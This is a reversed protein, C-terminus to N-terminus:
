TMQMTSMLEPYLHNTPDQEQTNPVFEGSTNYVIHLGGDTMEMAERLIRDM